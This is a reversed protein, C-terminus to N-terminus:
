WQKIMIVKRILFIIQNRIMMMLINRIVFIIENRIMIVNRIVFITQHRILLSVGKALKNLELFRLCSNELYTM